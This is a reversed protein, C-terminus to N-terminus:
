VLSNTPLTLHTYSVTAVDVLFSKEGHQELMTQHLMSITKGEPVRCQEASYTTGNITISQVQRDRVFDMKAGREKIGGDYLPRFLIKDTIIAM